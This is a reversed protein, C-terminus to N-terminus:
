MKWLARQFTVAVANWGLSWQTSNLSMCSKYQPVDTITRGVGRIYMVHLIIYANYVNFLVFGVWKDEYIILYNDEYINM